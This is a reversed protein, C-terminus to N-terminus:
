RRRVVDGDRAKGLNIGDLSGGPGSALPKAPRSSGAAPLGRVRSGRAPTSAKGWPTRAAEARRTERAAEGFLDIWFHGPRAPDVFVQVPAGIRLRELPSDTLMGSRERRTNGAESTWEVVVHWPHRGNIRVSQNREFGVIRGEVPVGHRRLHRAAGGLRRGSRVLAIGAIGLVVGLGGFLLPLFWREVFSDIVFRYPDEPDYFVTIREGVEYPSPSASVTGVIRIRRGDPTTFVITPVGDEPAAVVVGQASAGSEVLAEDDSVMIAASALMAAAGVIMAIGVLVM